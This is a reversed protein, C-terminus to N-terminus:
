QSHPLINKQINIFICFYPLMNLVGCDNFYIFKGLELFIIKQTTRGYFQEFANHQQEEEDEPFIMSGEAVPKPLNAVSVNPRETMRLKKLIQNKVYEIRLKTLEKETMRLEPRRQCKPCSIKQEMNHMKEATQLEDYHKSSKDDVSQVTQGLIHWQLLFFINESISCEM